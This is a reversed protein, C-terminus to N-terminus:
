PLLTSLLRPLKLKIAHRGAASKPKPELGTLTQSDPKDRGVKVTRKRRHFRALGGQGCEIWKGDRKVELGGRREEGPKLPYLQTSDLLKM